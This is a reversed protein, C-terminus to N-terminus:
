LILPFLGFHTQVSYSTFGAIMLSSYPASCLDLPWWNHLLEVIDWCKISGSRENGGHV